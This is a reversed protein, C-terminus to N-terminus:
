RSSPSRHTINFSAEMTCTSSRSAAKHLPCAAAAFRGDYNPPAPVSAHGSDQRVPWIGSPRGSETPEEGEQKPIKATDPRFSPRIQTGIPPLGREADQGVEEDRDNSDTERKQRPFTRSLDDLQVNEFKKYFRDANENTARILYYQHIEHKECDKEFEAFLKRAVGSHRYEPLVYVWNVSAM